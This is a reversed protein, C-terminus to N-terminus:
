LAFYIFEHLINQEKFKYNFSVTVNSSKMINYYNLKIIKAIQTENCLLKIRIIFQMWILLFNLASPLVYKVRLM